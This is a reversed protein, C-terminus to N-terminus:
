TYKEDVPLLSPQLSGWDFIDSALSPRPWAAMSPVSKRNEPPPRQLRAERACLYEQRGLTNQFGIAVM